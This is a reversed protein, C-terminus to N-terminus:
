DEENDWNLNSKAPAVTSADGITVTGVEHTGKDDYQPSWSSPSTSGSANPIVSACILQVTDVQLVKCEPRVYHENRKNTKSMMTKYILM